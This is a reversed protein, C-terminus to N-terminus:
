ITAFVSLTHMKISSYYEVRHTFWLENIRRNISVHATELKQNNHIFSSHVSNILGKHCHSQIERAYIHFIPISTDYPLCTYLKILFQWFKKWLLQVMNWAEWTGLRPYLPPLFFIYPVHQWTKLGLKGLWNTKKEVKWHRRIHLM